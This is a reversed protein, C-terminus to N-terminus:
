SRELTVQGDLPSLARLVAAASVAAQACADEIGLGCAAYWTLAGAFSDGAGYAGVQDWLLKPAEFHTVTETTRITGGDSGATLVLARPPVHYEQLDHAEKADVGSGVVVDAQVGSRALADFRRSTVVLVRSRRAVRLLEPDEATFYAADFGEILDWPLPDALTPHLPEGQVFITREGEPTVLVLDRTHPQDRHAVHISAKTAHLQDEVFRASDDNGLASFLHLEAPSRILQFFALGGGGGAITVVEDLHVIEGAAPLRAVPAISVHEVHGIVAIRLKRRTTM